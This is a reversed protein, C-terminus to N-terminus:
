TTGRAAAAIVDRMASERTSPRDHAQGGARAQQQKPGTKYAAAITMARDLAKPGSPPDTHNKRSQRAIEVIENDYLGLARWHICHVIAGPPMWYNPLSVGNQLGVAALVAEYLAVGDDPIAVLDARQPPDDERAPAHDRARANPSSSSSEERRKEERTSPYGEGVENNELVKRRSKGSEIGGRRGSSQADVRSRRLTSADDVAKRNVILGDEVWIKGADILESLIRKAKRENCRWLGCLVFINFTIAQESLRIANVIRLFAAEQELTLNATGENWNAIEFKYFDAM